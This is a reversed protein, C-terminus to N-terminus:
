PPTCAPPPRPATAGRALADLRDEGEVVDDQRLVALLLEMLDDVVNAQGAANEVVPLEALLKGYPRPTVASNWPGLPVPLVM